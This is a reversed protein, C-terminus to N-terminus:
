FLPTNKAPRGGKKLIFTLWRKMATEFPFKRNLVRLLRTKKANDTQTQTPLHRALECIRFTAATTIALTIYILNKLTPKHLIPNFIQTITTIMKEPSVQKPHHETKM